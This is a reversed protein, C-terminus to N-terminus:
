WQSLCEIRTDNEQNKLSTKKWQEIHHSTLLQLVRHQFDIYSIQKM